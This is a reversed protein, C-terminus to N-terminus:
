MKFNTKEVQHFQYSNGGFNKVKYMAMDAHPMLTEYSDGDEPFTSIGISASISLQQNSLNIPQQICRLVKEAVVAANNRKAISPLLIIFEDGGFRCTLDEKRLTNQITASVQQLLTDGMAHGYTDNIPKFNDLDIFLLALGHRRRRAQTLAHRVSDTFHSRNPLNTLLDYNAQHYLEEESHKRETIDQTIGIIHHVTDKNEEVPIFCSSFVRLEGNCRLQFEFESSYGNFARLMLYEIRPKDDDTVLSLYRCGLIQSVDNLRLMKLGTDNMATLRGDRDIEHICVPANDLFTQYIDQESFLVQSVKKRHALSTVSIIMRTHDTVNEPIIAKMVVKFQHGNRHSATAETEFYHRQELLAVVLKKLVELQDKNHKNTIKKLFTGKDKDGYLALTPMNVDIVKLQRALTLLEFIHNAFYHNYDRIDRTSYKELKGPLTGLDVLWLSINSQQFATRYWDAIKRQEITLYDKEPIPLHSGAKIM